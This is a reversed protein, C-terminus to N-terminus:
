PGSWLFESQLDAVNNKADLYIKVRAFESGIRGRQIDTKSGILAGTIATGSSTTPKSMLNFKFETAPVYSHSIRLKKLCQEAALRPMGVVICNSLQHRLLKEFDATAAITAQRPLSVLAAILMFVPALRLNLM